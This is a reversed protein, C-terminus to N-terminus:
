IAKMKHGFSDTRSHWVLRMVKDRQRKVVLGELVEYGENGMM